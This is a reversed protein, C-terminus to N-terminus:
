HYHKILKRVYVVSTYVITKLRNLQLKYASIDM